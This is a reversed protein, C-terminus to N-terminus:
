GARIWTDARARARTLRSPQNRRRTHLGTYTKRSRPEQKKNRLKRPNQKPKRQTETPNRNPKLGNEANAQQKRKNADLMERFSGWLLRLFRGDAGDPFTVEEGDMYAMCAELILGKEEATCERLKELQDGWLKIYM